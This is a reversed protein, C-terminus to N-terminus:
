GKVINSYGSTLTRGAIKATAVVKYYYTKGAIPKKATYSNGKVTKLKKYTGNKNASYYITYSSAGSVKRWSLGVTKTGSKAKLVPAAPNTGVNLTQSYTSNLSRDKGVSIVKFRYARGAGLKKITAANSKVFAVKEYKKIKSNFLYVDYGVAGPVNSWTLTVYSARQRTAKLSTPANLIIKYTLKQTGSYNGKFNVTATYTGPKQCGSPYTVTYDTGNKLEKGASDKVIVAPKQVKGNYAYATKTLAIKAIRGIQSSAVTERCLTCKQVKKGNSSLTAPSVVTAIKHGIPALEEESLKKECINCVIMISGSKTCTPNVTVEKTDTHKCGETKLVTHCVTCETHRAGNADSIWDSEIHGLAPVVIQETIIKGCALCHQGETLGTETCTPSVASDKVVTKHENPNISGYTANCRTCVAKEVCNASGGTHGLAPIEKPATTILGCNTCKLGSSTGPETCTSDVRFITVIHHGKEPISGTYKDGCVSCTFTIIGTNSCTPETTVESVYNHDGTRSIKKTETDNCISCKKIIYGDSGCTPDKSDYDYYSHTCYYLKDSVTSYSAYKTNVATVTAWYEDSKNSIYSKSTSKLGETKKVLKNTSKRYIRIVYERTDYMGKNPSESWLFKVKNDSINVKVSVKDPAAPKSYNLGDNTLNYIAFVQAETNNRQFLQINNGPDSKDGQSDLYLDCYSAKINYGYGTYYIFWRQAKSDNSGVTGVNTENTTGFNNADLCKNNYENVIKYSNDGQRIFHWIQKPSTSDNGDPSICVNDNSVGLHKWTNNKIIYAYFNDGINAPSPASPKSVNYRYVKTWVSGNNGKYYYNGVSIEKGNQDGTQPYGYDSHAGVLKNSGAYIETHGSKWLIDGRQLSGSNSLNINTIETFGANKLATGMNRTNFWTPSLSFGASSFAYYVLSSCDYDPGQRRSQSYGHSNDNAIAVATQVAKEVRSDIAEAKMLSMGSLDVGVIGALPVSTLMLIVALCCALIRKFVTKRKM